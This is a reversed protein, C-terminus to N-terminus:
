EFIELGVLDPAWHGDDFGSFVVTNEDGAVFGDLAVMLRGTEYWDGGALPFAWRKAENDNVAFTMNRTNTAWDGITHTYEYNIFDIGVFIEGSHASSVGEFTVSADANISGVKLHNPLCDDAGCDVLAAQGGVTADQVSYYAISSPKETTEIDSLVLLRLEHPKLEFTQVGSISGDEHAWVDRSAASSVGVLSLDVEVTQTENKWNAIGLVMRDDSLPGAWVDWEEETYRIVLAAAKALPDQNIAIVEENRMVELSSAPIEAEVLVGGIILPSKLMSWFGFHFHEEEVSLANLGIILMDLDAFAGPGTHQVHPVAQNVIRWLARWANFIDNSMRWSNGLPATWDPVNQGIGWQCLFYQMDRDTQNLAKEMTIFRDPSQSEPSTVDVMETPSTSYCNDYKLTDGGWDAFAQADIEEYGLSAPTDPLGCMRYGAGSYLGFKLDLNHIFDGLAEPGSPFTEKDWQLRDQEDRTTAAWGCDVTVINYGLDRFGLDVLGQANQKIITENPQCNYHNYSNWGMPPTPSKVTTGYVAPLAAALVTIRSTIFM